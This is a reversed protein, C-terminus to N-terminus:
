HLMHHKGWWWSLVMGIDILLNENCGDVSLLGVFVFPWDGGRINNFYRGMSGMVPMCLVVCWQL